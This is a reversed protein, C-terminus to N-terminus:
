TVLGGLAAVIVIPGLDSAVSDRIVGEVTWGCAVWAGIVRGGETEVSMLRRLIRRRRVVVRM